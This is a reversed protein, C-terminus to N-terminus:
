DLKIYAKDKGVVYAHKKSTEFIDKDEKLFLKEGDIQEVTAVTGIHKGGTLIITSGKELKLTDVIKKEKFDYVVSDNVKLPTEGILVNSGGFLNLQFGKANATKGIVKSIKISDKVAEVLTLKGRKTLTIRYSKKLKPFTLVDMFGISAKHDKVKVGNLLVEQNMLIDRVEKRTKALNLLDRLAVVVPFGFDKSHGGRPKAIFTEEKKKIDWTKSVAIRKNHNKVM